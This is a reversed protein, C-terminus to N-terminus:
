RPFFVWRVDKDFENTKEIFIKEYTLEDDLLGHTSTTPQSVASSNIIPRRITRSHADEVPVVNEVFQQSHSSRHPSHNLPRPLTSRQHSRHPYKGRISSRQSPHNPILVVRRHPNIERQHKPMYHGRRNGESM